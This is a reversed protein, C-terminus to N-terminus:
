GIWIDVENEEKGFKIGYRQDRLYLFEDCVKNEECPANGYKRMKKFLAFEYLSNSQKYGRFLLNDDNKKRNFRRDTGTCLAFKTAQCNYLMEMDYIRVDGNLLQNNTPLTNTVTNVIAFRKFETYESNSLVSALPDNSKLISTTRKQRIYDSQSM